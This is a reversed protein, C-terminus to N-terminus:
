RCNLLGFGLFPNYHRNFFFTSIYRVIRLKQKYEHESSSKYVLDFSTTLCDCPTHHTNSSTDICMIFTAFPTPGCLDYKRLRGWVRDQSKVVRETWMTCRPLSPPVWSGRCPSDQRATRAAAPQSVPLDNKPLLVYRVTGVHGQLLGSGNQRSAM